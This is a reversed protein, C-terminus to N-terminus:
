LGSMHCNLMRGVRVVLQVKPETFYLLSSSHM